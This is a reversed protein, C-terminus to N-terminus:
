AAAPSSAQRLRQLPSQHSRGMPSFWLLVQGEIIPDQFLNIAIGQLRDSAGCM